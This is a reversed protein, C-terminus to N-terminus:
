RILMSCARSDALKSRDAVVKEVCESQVRRKQMVQMPPGKLFKNGFKKGPLPEIDVQGRRARITTDVDVRFAALGVSGHEVDHLALSVVDVTSNSGLENTGQESHDFSLARGAAYERRGRHECDASSLLGAAIKRVAEAKPVRVVNLGPYM